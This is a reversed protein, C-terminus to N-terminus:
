GVSRLGLWNRKIPKLPSQKDMSQSLELRSQNKLNKDFNQSCVTPFDPSARSFSHALSEPGCFLFVGCRWGFGQPM